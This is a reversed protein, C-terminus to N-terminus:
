VGSVPSARRLRKTARGNGHGLGAARPQSHGTCHYCLRRRGDSCPRSRTRTSSRRAGREEGVKGSRVRVLNATYLCEATTLRHHRRGFRYTPKKAGPARSPLIVSHKGGEEERGGRDSWDGRGRGPKIDNKHVKDSATPTRDESM